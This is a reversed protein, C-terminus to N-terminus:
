TGSTALLQHVFQVVVAGEGVASAVRKTSTARVDGAAFICPCSTELPYPSRALPWFSERGPQTVEAGTCVFGKSDTLVPSPLFDTNPTAGIFIFLHRVPRRAEEGTRSNRWRIAQLSTEGVLEVVETWRLIEINRTTEIRRILYQSMRSALGESRVIVFVKRATEALYVAAQGASNGGGLIAIEEDRCLQSELYTAGYYIGAGEFRELNALAPKRYKAGSAIVVFRCRITEGTDLSLEHYPNGCSMATLRAPIMIKAGFKQAQMFGRAALAGGSIGTPFGLYNEIKSSTGAQGGPAIPDLVIVDLGESAAYVASALGAPGAGVVGVDYITQAEWQMSLGLRDAVARLSPNRLPEGNSTIVIPTEEPKIEFRSLLACVDAATELDLFSYPHGNRTLFDQLLLTGASHRSGVLLLDSFRDSILRMRRLIFSRMIIEGLRAHTIMVERLREIAIALVTLRTGARGCLMSGRGTLTATEGSYRGPGHSVIVTDVGFADRHVVDLTGDLVLFFDVNRDGIDWLVEGAEFMREAGFPKLEAIQSTSLTPFMQEWRDNTAGAWPPPSTTSLIDQEAM